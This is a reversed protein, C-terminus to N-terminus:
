QLKDCSKRLTQSCLDWWVTTVQSNTVLIVLHSTRYIQVSSESRDRDGYRWFFFCIIGLFLIKEVEKIRSVRCSYLTYTYRLGTPTMVKLKIAYRYLYTYAIAIRKMLSKFIKSTYLKRERYLYLVKVFQRTSEIYPCRRTLGCNEGDM